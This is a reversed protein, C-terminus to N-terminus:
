YLVLLMMLMLLALMLLMMRSVNLRSILTGRYVMELRANAIFVVSLKILLTVFEWFLTTILM